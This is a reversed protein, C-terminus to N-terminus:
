RSRAEGNEGDADVGEERAAYGAVCPSAPESRQSAAIPAAQDSATPSPAEATETRLPMGAVPATLDTTVVKEGAKLGDAVLVRERGRYAIEVRRIDLEDRENMVWVRNGDRLYDRDLAIVNELATGEIETRVYSGILLPPTEGSADELGLPDPVSVLVCAMRGQEELTSEL